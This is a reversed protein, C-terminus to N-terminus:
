KPIRGAPSASAAAGPSASQQLCIPASSGQGRINNAVLATVTAVLVTIVIGLLGDKYGRYWLNARGLPGRLQRAYDAGEVTVRLKLADSGALARDWKIFGAKELYLLPREEEATLSAFRTVRSDEQGEMTQFKGDKFWSRGERFSHAILWRVEGSTCIIREDVMERHFWLGNLVRKEAKNM